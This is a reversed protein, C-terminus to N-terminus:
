SVKPICLQAEEKTRQRNISWNDKDLQLSCTKNQKEPLQEWRLHNYTSPVAWSFANTFCGTKAVEAERLSVGNFSVLVM